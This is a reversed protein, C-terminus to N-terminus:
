AMVVAMVIGLWVILCFVIVLWRGMLKSMMSGPPTPAKMRGPDGKKTPASPRRSRILDLMEGGTSVLICAIERPELREPFLVMACNWSPGSGLEQSSNMFLLMRSPNGLWYAPM